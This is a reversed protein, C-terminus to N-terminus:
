MEGESQHTTALKKSCLVFLHDNLLNSEHCAERARCVVLKSDIPLCDICLQCGNAM